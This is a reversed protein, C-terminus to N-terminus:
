EEAHGDVVIGLVTGAVPLDLVWQEYDNEWLNPGEDGEPLELRAVTPHPNGVKASLEVIGDFDFNTAIELDQDVPSLLAFDRSPAVGMHNGDEPHLGFRITYVGPPVSQERFDSGREPFELVGLFAGEPVNDFRVGFGSAPEGEFPASRMWFTVVAVDGAKVTVGEPAIMQRTTDPVSEPAPGGSGATFGEAFAQPTLALTAVVTWTARILRM